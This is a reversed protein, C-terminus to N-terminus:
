PVTLANTPCAGAHALRRLVNWVHFRRSVLRRAAHFPAFPGSPGAPWKQRSDASEGWQGPSARALGNFRRLITSPVAIAVARLSAALPHRREVRMDPHLDAMPKNSAIVVETLPRCACDKAMCFMDPLMAFACVVAYLSIVVSKVSRTGSLMGECCTAPPTM